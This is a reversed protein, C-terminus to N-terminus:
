ISNSKGALMSCPHEEQVRTPTSTQDTPQSAYRAQFVAHEAHPALVTSGWNQVEMKPSPPTQAGTQKIRTRECACM